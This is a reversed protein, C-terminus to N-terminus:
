CGPRLASVELVRASWKGIVLDLASFQPMERLAVRQSICDILSDSFFGLAFRQRLHCLRGDPKRVLVCYCRPWPQGAFFGADVELVDPISLDLM